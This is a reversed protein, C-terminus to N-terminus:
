AIAGKLANFPPNIPGQAVANTAIPTPSGKTTGAQATLLARIQSLQDLSNLGVLQTIFATPDQANLPDQTQLETTLLKLFTSSLGSASTASSGGSTTPATVAAPASTHIPNTIQM